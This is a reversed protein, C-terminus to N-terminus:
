KMLIMKNMEVHDGSKLEYLYIGSNLDQGDFTMTYSGSTMDQDVLVEVVQGIANYITLTTYNAEDLTFNIKTTPNFPNPYNQNLEFTKIAQMPTEEVPTTDYVWDIAAYIFEWAADTMAEFAMNIIGLAAARNQTVEAPDIVTTNSTFLATGPEIGFIVFKSPDSALGAIPVFEVEPVAYVLTRGDIDATGTVMQIEEGATYGASLPHSTQDVIVINEETVALYDGNNPGWGAVYSRAVFMETYVVPIPAGKLNACIKSDVSESVFAFDHELIEEMSINELAQLDEDSIITVVYKQEFEFILDQDTAYGFGRDDSVFLCTPLDQAQLLISNVLIISLIIFTIQKATKM